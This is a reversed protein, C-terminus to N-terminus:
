TESRVALGAEEFLPITEYAWAVLSFVFGGVHYAASKGERYTKTKGMSQLLLDFSKKGWPYKNFIEADNATTVHDENVKVTDQKPLLAVELLLLNALKVKEADTATTTDLLKHAIDQNRISILGKFFKGRLSNDYADGVIQKKNGMVIPIDGCELGSMLAFEKLEFKALNGGFNFRVENSKASQCQHLLLLHIVKGPFINYKLNIFHGFCGKKFLEM